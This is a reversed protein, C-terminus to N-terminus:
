VQVAVSNKADVKMFVGGHKKTPRKLFLKNLELAPMEFALAM